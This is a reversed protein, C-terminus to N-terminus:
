GYGVHDKIRIRLMHFDKKKFNPKEVNKIKCADELLKEHIDINLM